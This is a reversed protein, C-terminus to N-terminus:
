RWGPLTFHVYRPPGFAERAAADVREKLLWADHAARPHDPDSQLQVLEALPQPVGRPVKGTAPDGGLVYAMSRASMALDTTPSPAGGSWLAEPYFARASASTAVLPRSPSTRQASSWGVLVVGHDRPHVLLHAPLVAGHVFGGRHVFGLLELTRKWMWVAARPDVGGSYEALVDVFTHQFGSRWRYVAAPRPVGQLDKVPGQMVPQPLLRSFHEAGQAESGHLESIVEFERAVLDADSLARAVKLVVLETLRSDRRALFM